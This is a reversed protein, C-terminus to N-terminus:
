EACVTLQSYQIARGSLEIGVATHNFRLQVYFPFYTEFDCFLLTHRPTPATVALMYQIHNSTGVPIENFFPDDFSRLPNECMLFIVNEGRYGPTNGTRKNDTM